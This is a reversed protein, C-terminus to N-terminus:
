PGGTVAGNRGQYKFLQTREENNLMFTHFLLLHGAPKQPGLFVIRHSPLGMLCVSLVPFSDWCTLWLADLLHQLHGRNCLFFNFSLSFLWELRGVTSSYYKKKKKKIVTKSPFTSQVIVVMAEFICSFKAFTVTLGFPATIRPKPNIVAGMCMFVMQDKFFFYMLLGTFFLLISLFSIILKPDKCIEFNEPM